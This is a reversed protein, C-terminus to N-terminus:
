STKRAEKSGAEEARLKVGASDPKREPRSVRVQIYSSPNRAENKQIIKLGNANIVHKRTGRPLKAPMDDV